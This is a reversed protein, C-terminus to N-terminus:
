GPPFAKGIAAFLAKARTRTDPPLATADKMKALDARILKAVVGKNFPIGLDEMAREVRKCLQAGPRLMLDADVAAMAKEYARKVRDLYFEEPFMDEIAFERGPDGSAEGLSLVQTSKGKYRTLWKKVLQDRATDGARDSDLLVVVSLKQGVMFTAIYAAESAGGSATILVDDPLGEEGARILLNSLESLIWFDDVGEVVLNRNAVLYSQSGSMGIAAQLTLKAEQQSQTLDETVVAGDQTESIVRIREPMRLDIMFPLHTTYILTNGKAYEELRDLLDKQAGPHLHLGPEDLLIVCDKFTGKSEHMFMLDFSFFWQFGKSREELKILAGNLNDTVITFFQHGDARYAVQYQRQKLREKIRDTLTKAADDLDYQRQERDSQDAQACLENLSLGSLELIMLFTSDEATLKENDRRQKVENLMMTGKFTRFDDMYVFTPIRKTVYEHARQQISPAAELHQAIEWLKTTYQNTYQQQYAHYSADGQSVIAQLETSHPTRLEALDSFRGDRALRRAEEQLMAAKEFFQPSMQMTTPKPLSACAEDIENHHLKNPFVGVSFVVELRGGYDRTIEITSGLHVQQDTLDALDKVEHDSLEFRATCVVQTDSREKRHGRPWESNMVYPDPAYPNLKHLARLLSTKGSENKGVLVSLNEVDIWGSDLVGKYMHVRFAKLKM